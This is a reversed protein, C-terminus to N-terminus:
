SRQNVLDCVLIARHSQSAKSTMTRHNTAIMYGYFWIAMPHITVRGDKGGNSLWAEFAYASHLSPFLREERITM